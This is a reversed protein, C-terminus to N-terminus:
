IHILSLVLVQGFIKQWGSIGLNQKRHVKLFDDIFGVLGLGVLMLLVLLASPTPNEFNALKGVFYGTLTALIIVVGGMTPTGHKLKHSQPGDERIFQGWNLRKFLWIFAPTAFLTFAMSIGGALLLARV